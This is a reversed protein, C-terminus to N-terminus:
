SVIVEPFTTQVQKKLTAFAVSNSQKDRIVNAVIGTWTSLIDEGYKDPHRAPIGAAIPYFTELVAQSGLLPERFSRENSTFVSRLAPMNLTTRLNYNQWTASAIFTVFAYALDKNASQAYIARYTGGSYYPLPAKAIGWKGSGTKFDIFLGGAWSPWGFMIVSGDNWASGWAPSFPGLKADVGDVYITRATDLVGNWRPDINLKGNVVWPQMSYESVNLADSYHALLHVKGNSQRAVQKGLAIIAPWSAVKASVMAPDDTGLYRKALDRRYWFGGPSSNDTVARVKGHSDRGLAAAYPIYDKVLAEAGMASLDQLLPLDLYKGIYGRELDFVDPPNQNNQLSLRLKTEYDSGPFIKVDVTVGPNHAMFQQAMTKVQAFFTWIVLHGSLRGSSAAAAGRGLSLAAPGALAAAAVAGGLRLTEKRSPTWATAADTKKDKMQESGRMEDM